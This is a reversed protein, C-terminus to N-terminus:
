ICWPYYYYLYDTFHRIMREVRHRNRYGSPRIYDKVRKAITNSSDTDGAKGAYMVYSNKPLNDFGLQVTFIYVGQSNPFVHGEHETYKVENWELESLADVRQFLAPCLVFPFNNKFYGLVMEAKERDNFDDYASIDSYISTM